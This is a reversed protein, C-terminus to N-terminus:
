DLLGGGLSSVVNVEAVVGDIIQTDEIEQLEERPHGVTSIQGLRGAKSSAEMDEDASVHGVAPTLRSPNLSDAESESTTDHCAKGLDAQTDDLEAIDAAGTTGPQEATLLPASADNNASDDKELDSFRTQQGDDAKSPNSSQSEVSDATSERVVSISETEIANPQLQTADENSTPSQSSERSSQDEDMSIDSDGDSQEAPGQDSAGSPSGSSSTTQEVPVNGSQSHPAKSTTLATGGAV